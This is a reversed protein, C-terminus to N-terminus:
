ITNKHTMQKAIYFVSPILLLSLTASFMRSIVIAQQFTVSLPHFLNTIIGTIFILYIPFSGYAFFHPNLQIPFVLQSISSAINREDPHFYFPDGWDINYFRLLAGVIMLLALLLLYKTDKLHIHM